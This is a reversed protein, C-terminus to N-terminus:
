EGGGFRGYVKTSSEKTEPSLYLRRVHIYATSKLNCILL